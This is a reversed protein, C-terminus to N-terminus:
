QVAPGRAQLLYFDSFENSITDIRVNPMAMIRLIRDKNVEVQGQALEFSKKYIIIRNTALVSELNNWIEWASNQTNEPEALPIFKIDNFFIRYYAFMNWAENGIAVDGSHARTAVAKTQHYTLDNNLDTSYVFVSFLNLIFLTFGLAILMRRPRRNGNRHQLNSNIGLLIYILTTQMFWYRQNYGSWFLPMVSVSIIWFCIYLFPKTAISFFQKANRIFSIINSLLLVGVGALLFAYFYLAGVPLNRYVYTEEVFSMDSRLISCIFSNIGQNSLLWYPATVTQGMGIIWEKVIQIPSTTVEFISAYYAIWQLMSSYTYIDLFVVMVFLYVLITGLGSFMAYLPYYKMLLSKREKSAIVAATVALFIFVNWQNFVIACTHFTGLLIWKKKSETPDLYIYMMLLTFFAPVTYVNVSTSVIWFGFSFGAPMLFLLSSRIDISFRKRFIAYIISLAGAGWLANISTTAYFVNETGLGTLLKSWFKLMIHYLLHHPHFSIPGTIANELYNASDLVLTQCQNITALYAFAFFTFVLIVQKRISGSQITEMTM